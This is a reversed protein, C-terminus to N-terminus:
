LAPLDRVDGEAHLPLRDLFRLPVFVPRDAVRDLHARQVVEQVLGTRDEDDVELIATSELPRPHALLDPSGRYLLLDIELLLLGEGVAERLREVLGREVLDVRDNM